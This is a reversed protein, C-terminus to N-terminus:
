HASGLRCRLYVEYLSLFPSNEIPATAIMLAPLAPVTAGAATANELMTETLAVDLENPSMGQFAKAAQQLLAFGAAGRYDPGAQDQLELIMFYVRLALRRKNSMSPNSIPAALTVLDSSACLAQAM